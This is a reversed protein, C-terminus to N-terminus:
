NCFPCKGGSYWVGCKNCFTYGEPILGKMVKVGEGGSVTFYGRGPGFQGVMNFGACGGTATRVMVMQGYLYWDAPIEVSVRGDDNGKNRRTEVMAASFLRFIKEPDKELNDGFERRFEEALGEVVGDIKMKSTVRNESALELRMLVEALKEDTEVPQALLEFEDTVEGEGGLDKWVLALEKFRNQVVFRTWVIEEEDRRWFDVCNQPYDYFANQPSFNVVMRGKELGSEITKIATMEEPRGGKSTLDSIYLGSEGDYIRGDRWQYDRRFSTLFAEYVATKVERELVRGRVGPELGVLFGAELVPDYGGKLQERTTTM